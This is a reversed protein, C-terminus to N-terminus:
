RDAIPRLRLRELASRQFSLASLQGASELLWIAAVSAFQIPTSQFASCGLAPAGIRQNPPPRQKRSNDELGSPPNREEAV